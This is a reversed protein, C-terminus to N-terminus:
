NKVCEYIDLKNDTLVILKKNHICISKIVERHYLKVDGKKIGTSKDFIIFSRTMDDAVWIDVADILLGSSIFNSQVKLVSRDKVPDVTFVLGKASYWITDNDCYISSPAFISPSKSKYVVEGSEPNIKIISNEKGSVSLWLNRKDHAISYIDTEDDSLINDYVFSRLAKNNKHNYCIVEFKNDEESKNIVWLNDSDSTVAVPNNFPVSETTLLELSYLSESNSDVFHDEDKSCSIFFLSVSLIVLLLNLKRM